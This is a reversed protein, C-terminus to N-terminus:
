VFQESYHAHMCMRFKTSTCAVARSILQYMKLLIWRSLLEGSIDHGFKNMVKRALWSFGFVMM